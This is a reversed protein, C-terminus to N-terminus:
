SKVPSNYLALCRPLMGQLKKVYAVELKLVQKKSDVREVKIAVLENSSINKGIYIEGQSCTLPSRSEFLPAYWVRRTWDETGRAV